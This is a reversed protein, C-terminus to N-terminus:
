DQASLVPTKGHPASSQRWPFGNPFREAMVANGQLFYDLPVSVASRGIMYNVTYLGSTGTRPYARLLANCLHLDASTVLAGEFRRHWQHALAVAVHRRLAYCNADVLHLKADHYIPWQGLSQCDDNCAVVGEPTVIRRLAYAWDLNGAEITEVLAAVHEPEFWNDEDLYIVLDSSVLFPFAGYIRHGNFGGRGTVAGLVVLETKPRDRFGDLFPKAQEYRESGDVVIHHTVSPWSQGRVSDAARQLLPDGTTATIVSVTLM